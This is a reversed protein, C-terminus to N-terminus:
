ASREGPEPVRYGHDRALKGRESPTERLADGYGLGYSARMFASAKALDWTEVTEASRWLEVLRLDVDLELLERPECVHFRRLRYGEGRVSEIEERAPDIRRRAYLVAARITGRWDGVFAAWGWVRRGLEEYSVVDPERARLLDLLRDPISRVDAM